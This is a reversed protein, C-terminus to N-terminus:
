GIERRALGEEGTAKWTWIEGWGRDPETAMAGYLSRRQRLHKGNTM